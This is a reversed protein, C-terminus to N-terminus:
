RQAMVGKAWSAVVDVRATTEPTTHPCAPGDSEVSVLVPSSAPGTFYPAGSDYLCASTDAYPSYGVVLLTSPRVGSVKVQGSYLQNSPMPDVSSTAGWGAVSLIQNRVPTATSLALPTVGSVPMELKALAIDNTPLQEVSSVNATVAGGSTTTFANLLVSTPYPVLGSVRNGNVDHFCHGATMIWGPAVLGGSCASSRTVGPTSTPIGTMTLKAAFPYLNSQVKIGDAIAAAPAVGSAGVALLAGLLSVAATLARRPFM